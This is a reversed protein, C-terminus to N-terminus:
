ALAEWDFLPQEAENVARQKTDSVLNEYMRALQIDKERLRKEVLSRIDERYAEDVVSWDMREILEEIAAEAGDEASKLFALHLGESMAEWRHSRLEEEVPELLAKREDIDLGSEVLDMDVYILASDRSDSAPPAHFDIDHQQENM